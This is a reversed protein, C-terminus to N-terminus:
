KFILKKTYKKEKDICLTIFYIGQFNNKAFEISHRGISKEGTDIIEMKEGTINYLSIETYSNKDLDFVITAKESVPNPYVSFRNENFTLKNISTTESELDYHMTGAISIKTAEACFSADINNLIDTVKHYNPNEDFNEEIYVSKFGRYYFARDAFPGLTSPWYQKNLSTYSDCVSAILATEAECGPYNSFFITWFGDNYAIMDNNIVLDITDNKITANAAHIDYGGLGYNMLEEAAFAVIEITHEPTYNIESFVRAVELCAAIGSADDDAGPAFTFPDGYAFSDYHGCIIVKKASLGPITAVINYQTTTTDIGLGAHVTHTQFTDIRVSDIGLLIFKNQLWNAIELRNPAIMFRTEYNELHQIYSEISDENVLLTTTLIYDTQAKTEFATFLYIFIFFFLLNKLISFGSNKILIISLYIKM